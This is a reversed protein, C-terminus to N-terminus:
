ISIVQRAVRDLYRVVYDALDPIYAMPTALPIVGEVSSSTDSSFLMLPEEMVVDEGIEKM